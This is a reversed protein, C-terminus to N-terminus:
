IDTWTKRNIIQIIYNPALEYKDALIRSCETKGMGSTKYYKRIERVDEEKLKANPHKSGKPKNFRDDRVTDRINEKQTGLQLHDPNICRKNHCRHRVIMGEPV